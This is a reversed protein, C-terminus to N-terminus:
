KLFRELGLTLLAKKVGNKLSEKIPVAIRKSLPAGPMPRFITDHYRINGTPTTFYYQYFSRRTIGPPM